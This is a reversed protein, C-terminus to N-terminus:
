ENKYGSPNTAEAVNFKASNLVDMWNMMLDSFNKNIFAAMKQKLKCGFVM